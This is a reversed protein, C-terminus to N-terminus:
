VEAPPWHENQAQKVTNVMSSDHKSTACGSFELKLATALKAYDNLVHQQQLRTFRTAHRNSTRKLLYVMESGKACRLISQSVQFPTLPPAMKSSSTLTNREL